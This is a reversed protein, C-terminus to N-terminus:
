SGTKSFRLIVYRCCQRFQDPHILREYHGRLRQLENLQRRFFTKILMLKWASTHRLFHESMEVMPQLRNALIEHALEMTPACNETIDAAAQLALGHSQALQVYPLDAIAFGDPYPLEEPHRFAASILLWGGPRLLRGTQELGLKWNIGNVSESFLVLDFQRPEAFDEYRVSHFDIGRGSGNTYYRAHNPDPSIATVQYGRQAMAQANDGIGSGVDLVTKTGEPIFKLLEETYRAQVAMVDDLSLRPQM